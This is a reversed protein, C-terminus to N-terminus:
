RKGRIIFKGYKTDAEATLTDGIVEGSARYAIKFISKRLIGSFSFRQGDTQGSAFPSASGGTKVTGHLVGAEDILTLTGKEMGMPTEMSIAYVGDIM